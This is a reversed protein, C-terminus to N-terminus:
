AQPTDAIVTTRHMYRDGQYDIVAYHMLSRNDWIMLDNANWRHRYIFEAQVAHDFLFRLLTEGETSTLGVLQATSGPNVFLAKRGTEPHTIVVPHIYQNTGDFDNSELQDATYTGSGTAATAFDHVANLSELLHKMSDSLAEYASYMDAFMTDGGFSPLEIAYLLSAAAPHKRFSVDSHWYNGAKERGLPTGGEVKNSVRYIGPHGPLLYKHVSKQFQDSEGFLPGFNRSFALHQEPTLHQDRIVLLGNHKLWTERIQSFVNHDITRSLDLGLIEAGLAPGIRNVTFEMVKKHIQLTM